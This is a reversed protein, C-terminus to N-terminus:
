ILLRIHYCSPNIECVHEFSFKLSPYLSIWFNKPGTSFKLDFNPLFLYRGYIVFKRGIREQIIKKGRFENITESKEGTGWATNKVHKSPNTTARWCM